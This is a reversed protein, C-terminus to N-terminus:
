KEIHDGGKQVTRSWREILGHIGTQYFVHDQKKLWQHQCMRLAEEDEFHIVHRAEKLPRFLHFDALDSSYPPHPLVKLEIKVIKETTHCSIHPRINDHLLLVDM